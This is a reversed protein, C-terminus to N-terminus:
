IRDLKDSKIIPNARAIADREMKKFEFSCCHKDWFRHLGCFTGGCRCVFGTLGVRKRCVECRSPGQKKESESESKSEVAVVEKAKKKVDEEEIKMRM